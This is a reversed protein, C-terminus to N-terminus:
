VAKGYLWERWKLARAVEQWWSGLLPKPLAARVVVLTGHGPTSRIRLNAGITDARRKMGRIGFGASQGADSFGVGDDQIVLKVSSRGCALRLHLNRPQGHRTANSIAEQGIRFLPDSIRLPIPRPDGRVTLAIAIPGDQVIRQAAQLLAEGLGLQDLNGPRLAAINRRAEMHGFRVLDVTSELQARMTSGVPAESSVAELQFRLGAFSQALTDHMEMALREREEIVARLKSRKVSTYVLQLGVSLLLLAALAEVIHQTNWWPPPDIVQVDEISRMLLAFPIEDKTYTRDTVCIGRLRLRSGVEFGLPAEAPSPNDTIAVFSQSGEKLHLMITDGGTHQESELRGETEIFQADFSGTAAQAATVAFSPISAHSWLPRVTANRLISSFDHQDADGSAEVADGIQVPKTTVPHPIAIGGSSDQVFLEPTVLTVVGQVTVNTPRDPALLRLRIIPLASLDSRDNSLERHMPAWNRQYSLLDTLASLNGLRDPLGPKQGALLTQLDAETAPAVEVNRWVAGTSYSQLGFRGERICNPDIASAITTEGKGNIASAALTCEYAIVKLHYWTGTSVASHVPNSRFEHWGYDARGIILTDDLDRLGAFYGHYADVGVEEQSARLVFGADGTEGLLQVDASIMYNHWHLDGNMLKAGRDDAINRMTGNVVQWTGGYAQWGDRHAHGLQASSFDDHFHPLREQWQLYAFCIATGAGALCLFVAATWLLWRKTRRVAGWRKM